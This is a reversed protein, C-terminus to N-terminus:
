AGVTIDTSFPSKTERNYPRSIVSSIIIRVRESTFYSHSITDSM